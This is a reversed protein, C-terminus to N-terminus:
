PPHRSRKFTKSYPKKREITKLDVFSLDLVLNFFIKVNRSIEWKKITM